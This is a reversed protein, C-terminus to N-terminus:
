FPGSIMYTRGLPWPVGGEVVEDALEGEGHELAPATAEPQSAVAEALLWEEIVGIGPVQAEGRRDRGQEGNGPDAPFEIVLGEGYVKIGGGYYNDADGNAITFGRIVSTMDVGTDYFNFDLYRNDTGTYTGPAVPVTDGTAAAAIGIAGKLNRM